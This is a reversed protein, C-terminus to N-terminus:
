ELQQHLVLNFKSSFSVCTKTQTLLELEVDLDSPRKLYGNIHNEAPCCDTLKEVYSSQHVNPAWLIREHCLIYPCVNREQFEEFHQKRQDWTSYKQFKM